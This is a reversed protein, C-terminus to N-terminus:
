TVMVGDVSTRKEEGRDDGTSVPIIIKHHLPHRELSAADPKRPLKRRNHVVSWGVM